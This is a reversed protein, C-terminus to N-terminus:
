RRAGQFSLFPGRAPGKKQGQQQASYYEPKKLEFSCLNSFSIGHSQLFVHGFAANGATPPRFFHDQLALNRDVALHDGLHAHLHFFRIFHHDLSLDNTGFGLLMIHNIVLGGPFHGGNGIGLAAGAHQIMEPIIGHAKIGNAAQVIIGLAQQQKGIVAGEGFFHQMGAMLHIFGIQGPDGGMYGQIGHPFQAGPDHQIIM